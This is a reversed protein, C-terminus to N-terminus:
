SSSRCCSGPASCLRRGYGYVAQMKELKDCMAGATDDHHVSMRADAAPRSAQPQKCGGGPQGPVGGAPAHHLALRACRQEVHQCRGPDPRPPVDRLLQAAVDRRIVPRWVHAAGSCRWQMCHCQLLAKTLAPRQSAAAGLQTSACTARPPPASGLTCASKRQPWQPQLEHLAATVSHRPSYFTWGSKKDLAAAICVEQHQVQCKNKGQAHLLGVRCSTEVPAPPM